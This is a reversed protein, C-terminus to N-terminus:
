SYRKMLLWLLGVWTVFVGAVVLYVARWTRLGPLGTTEAEPDPKDAPKMFTPRTIRLAGPKPTTWIWFRYPASEAERRAGLGHENLFRRSRRPEPWM